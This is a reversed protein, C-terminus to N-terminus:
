IFFIIIVPFIVAAVLLLFGTLNQSIMEQTAFDELGKYNVIFVENESKLSLLPIKFLAAMMISAIFLYLSQIRQLM